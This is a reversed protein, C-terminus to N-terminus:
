TELQMCLHTDINERIHVCLILNISALEHLDQILALLLSLTDYAFIDFGHRVADGDLAQVLTDDFNHQNVATSQDFTLLSASQVDCFEFPPERSSFQVVELPSM